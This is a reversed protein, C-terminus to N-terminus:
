CWTLVGNALWTQPVNIQATPHSSIVKYIPRLLPFLKKCNIKSFNYAAKFVNTRNMQSCELGFNVAIVIDLKKSQDQGRFDIYFRM